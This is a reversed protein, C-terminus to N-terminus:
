NDPKDHKKVLDLVQDIKEGYDFSDDYYFKIEPMYKLELQRALSRKIYGHARKFGEITSDINKKGAPLVFYIRANKLDKSMKIKTITAAKIRLDQIERILIDSLVKHMKVSVRDTRSFPKM